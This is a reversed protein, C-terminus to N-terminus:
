VYVYFIAKPWFVVCVCCLCMCEGCVRFLRLGFRLVVCVFLCVCMQKRKLTFYERRLFCCFCASFVSFVSFLSSEKRRTGAMTKGKRADFSTPFLFSLLHQTGRPFAFSYPVLLCFASLIGSPIYM